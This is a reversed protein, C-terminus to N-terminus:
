KVCEMRIRKQYNYDYTSTRKFGLWFSTKRLKLIRWNSSKRIKNYKRVSKKRLLSPKNLKYWSFCACIFFCGGRVVLVYLPFLASKNFFVYFVILSFSVRLPLLRQVTLLLVNVVPLKFWDRTQVLNVSTGASQSPSNVGFQGEVRCHQISLCVSM